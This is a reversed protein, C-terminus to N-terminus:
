KKTIKKDHKKNSNLEENQPAKKKLFNVFFDERIDVCNEKFNDQKSSLPSFLIFSTGMQGAKNLEWNDPYNISYNNESLSKWDGLIETQINNEEETQNCATLSTILALIGILKITKMKNMKILRYFGFLFDALIKM